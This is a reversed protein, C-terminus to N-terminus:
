KGLQPSKAVTNQHDMARESLEELSLDGFLSSRWKTYDFPERLILSVFREANVPGLKASLIDLGQAKIESDTMTNLKQSFNSPILFSFTM